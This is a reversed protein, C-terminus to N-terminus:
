WDEEEDDYEGYEEEDCDYADYYDDDYYDDDDSNLSEYRYEVTVSMGLFDFIMDLDEKIDSSLDGVLKDNILLSLPLYEGYKDDEYKNDDHEQINLNKIKLFDLILYTADVTDGPLFGLNYGNVTVESWFDYCCGATCTSSKKIIEIDQIGNHWEDLAILAEDDDIEDYQEYRQEKM